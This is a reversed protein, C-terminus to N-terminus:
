RYEIFDRETQTLIKRWISQPTVPRIHFQDVLLRIVAELSVRTAPFHIHELTNGARLASETLQGRIHFHTQPHPGKPNRDYEYRFVWQSGAADFQYQFSSNMVKLRPGQDSRHIALGMRVNLFRGDRLALPAVLGTRGSLVYNNRREGQYICLSNGTAMVTNRLLLNFLDCV